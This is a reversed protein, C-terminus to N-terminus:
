TVSTSTATRSTPDPRQQRGSRSGAASATALRRWAAAAFAVLLLAPHSRAGRIRPPTAMRETLTSMPLWREPFSWAPRQASRVTRGFVSELYDPTRRPALEELLMPLDGEFREFTTM